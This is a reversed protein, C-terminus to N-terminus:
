KLLNILDKEKNKLLLDITIYNIENINYKEIRMFDKETTIIEAKLTKALKKIKEIDVKSFNFHDPFEKQGVIKFNAGQLTDILTSHNGIGSFVFYNKNIDLNNLNTIQYKADFINIKINMENIKQIIQTTDEDNGILFVNKYISINRLKERLPGSPIIMGNGIWNKKNFCVFSCDFKISKDQLGDDFIAVEYGEEEAKKLANYRKNSTFIKGYKNLLKIEDSQEVYNKKIFCTKFKDKLIKHLKISLSTKGTGGLYINGVCICKINLNSNKKNSLSKLLFLLNYFIAFPYLIYSLLNPKKFDWFKPKKYNM